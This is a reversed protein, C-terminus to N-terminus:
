TGHGVDEGRVTGACDAARKLDSARGCACHRDLAARNRRGPIDWESGFYFNCNGAAPGVLHEDDFISCGFPDVAPVQVKARM